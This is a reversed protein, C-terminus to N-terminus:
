LMRRVPPLKVSSLHAEIYALVEPPLDHDALERVVEFEDRLRCFEAERAELTAQLLAEFGTNEKAKVDLHRAIQTLLSEAIEKNRKRDDEIEQRRQEEWLIESLRLLARHMAADSTPQVNKKAKVPSRSSLMVGDGYHRGLCDGVKLFRSTYHDGSRLQFGYHLLFDHEKSIEGIRWPQVGGKVTDDKAGFLFGRFLVQVSYGGRSTGLVEYGEGKQWLVVDEKEVDIFAVHITPLTGAQTVIRRDQLVSAIEDDTMKRMM